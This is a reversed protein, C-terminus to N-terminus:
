TRALRARVALLEELVSKDKARTMVSKVAILDDLSIVKCAHGFIQITAARSKLDEFSGAATVEDLIDLVGSSTRLYYNKLTEGSKPVEDLSPQFAANMRHKPDLGSLAAKLKRLQAETMVACIDLDHTVQSVGHVVAAYGGILIFDLEADLLRKLLLNLSEM